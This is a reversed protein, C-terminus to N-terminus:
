LDSLIVAHVSGFTANLTSQSGYADTLGFEVQSNALKDTTWAITASSTGEATVLVNSITPPTSLSVTAPPAALTTFTQDDSTVLNGLADRSKVRYHYATNPSLGNLLVAHAFGISVDITTHSGYDTTLGYEIQSDALTSTTWVLLASSSTLASAEITSIALPVSVSSSPEATVTLSDTTFTDDGSYTTQGATNTTKIRYHYETGPTLDEIMVTHALGFSADITTHSGYDMTLGYQVQSNAIEDTTWLITVSTETVSAVNQTLIVPPTDVVLPASITTFLQDESITVNGATDKSKVRFHYDTGPQLNMLTQIHATALTVSLTTEFGYVDTLGYEIQSDAIEDTTWAIVGGVTTISSITVNSIIPGYADPNAILAPDPEGQVPADATTIPDLIIDTQTTETTTVEVNLSSSSSGTTVTTTETVPASVSTETNTSPTSTNPLLQAQAISVSSLNIGILLYWALLKRTNMLFLTFPGLADSM